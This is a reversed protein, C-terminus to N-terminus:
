IAQEGVTPPRIIQTPQTADDAVAHPSRQTALHGRTELASNMLNFATFLRGLEDRRELRIRYHFDGRAVGLLADGLM